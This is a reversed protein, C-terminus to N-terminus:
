GGTNSLTTERGSTLVEELPVEPPGLKSTAMHGKRAVEVQAERTLETSDIMRCHLSSM